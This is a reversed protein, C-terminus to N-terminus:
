SGPDECHCWPAEELLGRLCMLGQARSCTREEPAPLAPPFSPNKVFMLHPERRRCFCSLPQLFRWCSVHMRIKLLARDKFRSFRKM